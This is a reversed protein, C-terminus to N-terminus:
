PVPVSQEHLCGLWYGLGFAAVLLLGGVAIPLWGVALEQRRLKALWRRGSSARDFERIATAVAGVQQRATPNDPDVELVNLYTWVAEGLKGAKTLSEARELGDHLHDVYDALLSLDTRCSPCEKELRTLTKKCMPCILM